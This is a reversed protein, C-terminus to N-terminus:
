DIRVSQSMDRYSRALIAVQLKSVGVSMSLSFQLINTYRITCFICWPARHAQLTIHGIVVIDAVSVLAQNM